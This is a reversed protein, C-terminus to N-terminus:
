RRGGKKGLGFIRTLSPKDGFTWPKPEGNPKRGAAINRAERRTILGDKVQRELDEPLRTM